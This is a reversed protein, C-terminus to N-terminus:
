RLGRRHTRSLADGMKKSMHVAPVNRGFDSTVNGYRDKILRYGSGSRSLGFPEDVMDLFTYPGPAGSVFWAPLVFDSVWISRTEGGIKVEVDYKDGECPDSMERAVFRGDPMPLWMDCRPDARLELAEHSLTTADDPDTGALVRGFVLGAIDDHFGLAGPKDINDLIAMPWFSGVPLGALTAYSRVPWPEDQYAPAWDLEMQMNVARVQFALDAPSLLRSNEQVAIEM